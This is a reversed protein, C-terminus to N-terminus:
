APIGSRRAFRSLILGADILVVGWVGLWIAASYARGVTAILATQPQGPLYLIPVATGPTFEPDESAPGLVPQLTTGDAARFRIRPAYVVGGGPAFSAVNETVVGTTRIRHRAFNWSHLVFAASLILLVFGAPQPFIRLKPM